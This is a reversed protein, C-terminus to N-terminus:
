LFRKIELWDKEIPQGNEDKKANADAKIEKKEEAKENPPKLGEFIDDKPLPINYKQDIELQFPQKRRNVKKDKEKTEEELDTFEDSKIPKYPYIYM